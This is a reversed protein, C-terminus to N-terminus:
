SLAAPYLIEWLTPDGLGRAVLDAAALEDRPTQAHPVVVCRCGAAKAARLGNVSDELVVVAAPPLGLREAARAYVEPHPKGHTVDDCTLVFAFRDLLGHPGFVAGVYERTSSTAIAKPIRHRGLRDILDVAGPMLPPRGGALAALFDRKYEAAIVDLPETLRYQKCFRPLADRGPTGMMTAFFALDLTLGRRALIRRAAEAFLGETDILLGDLDFVVARAAAPHEGSPPSRTM